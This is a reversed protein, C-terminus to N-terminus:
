HLTATHAYDACVQGCKPCGQGDMHPKCLSNNPGCTGTECSGEAADCYYCGDNMCLNYLRYWRQVDNPAIGKPIPRGQLDFSVRTAGYTQELIKKEGQSIEWQAGFRLSVDSSPYIVPNEKSSAESNPYIVPNEKSIEHAISENSVLTLGICLLFICKFLRHEM